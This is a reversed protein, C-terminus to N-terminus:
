RFYNKGKYLAIEQIERSSDLSVIAIKADFLYNNFIITEKEQKALLVLKMM